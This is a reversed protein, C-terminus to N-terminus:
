RSAGEALMKLRTGAPILGPTRIRNIKAIKASVDPALAGGYLEACVALLPLPRDITIDILRDEASTLAEGALMVQYRLAIMAKYASWRTIDTALDLADIADSIQETLSAVGLFVEQSDLDEADNWEQVKALCTTPVDSTDIGLDSLADDVDGAAVSVSELGAASSVGAGSPFVSQLESEPYFTCTVRIEKTESSAHTHTAEARALYSGDLPHSFIQPEGAKVLARFADYRDTYPALRPQDVFLIECTTPGFKEGRDMLVHKNGRSPSSVAIDRGGDTDIQSVLIRQDGFAADFYIVPM